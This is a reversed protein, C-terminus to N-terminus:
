GKKRYLLVQIYEVNYHNLEARIWAEGIKRYGKPPADPDGPHRSCIKRRLRSEEQYEELRGARTGAPCLAEEGHLLSSWPGIGDSLCSESWSEVRVIFGYPDIYDKIGEEIVPLRKQGILATYLARGSPVPIPTM